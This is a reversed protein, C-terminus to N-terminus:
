NTFETFETFGGKDDLGEPMFEKNVHGCKSCAFVNIPVIVDKPAGILLKPIRRMLYHETFKDSGCEECVIPTSDKISPRSSNGIEPIM